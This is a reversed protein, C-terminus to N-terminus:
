LFLFFFFFSLIAFSHMRPLIFATPKLDVRLIVGVFDEALMDLRAYKWIIKGFYYNKKKKKKASLPLKIFWFLFM